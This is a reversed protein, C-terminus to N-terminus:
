KAIEVGGYTPKYIIQSPNQELKDALRRMARAMDKTERTMETIQGLGDGAFRDINGKNRTVVDNVNSITADLQDATHKFKAVIEDVDESAASINNLSTTVNAVNQDTLLGNMDRSLKEINAFTKNLNEVNQDNLIGNMKETMELIQKSIQPVDQFLKSLQTGKGEIVPYKEGQIKKPPATDGNPTTLNIFALGTVGLTALSADTSATIPTDESVEIDVKILESQDPSLRVDRVRGVAIGRYQVAAGNQLGSVADHFYVTYRNYNKSDHTGTLWIVFIILAFFAISVFLGVIFYHSNKEM